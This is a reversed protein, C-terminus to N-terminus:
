KQDVRQAQKKQHPHGPDADDPRPVQQGKSTWAVPFGTAVWPQGSGRREAAAAMAIHREPYWFGKNLAAQSDQDGWSLCQRFWCDKELSMNVVHPATYPRRCAVHSTAQAKQWPQPDQLARFGLLAKPHFHPVLVAAM